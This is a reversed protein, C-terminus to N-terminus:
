LNELSGHCKEKTLEILATIYYVTKQKDLYIHRLHTFRINKYSTFQKLTGVIPNAVVAHLM